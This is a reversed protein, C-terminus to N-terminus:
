RSGNLRNASSSCDLSRISGGRGGPLYGRHPNKLRLFARERVRVWLSLPSSLREVVGKGDQPAIPIIKQSFFVRFCLSGPKRKV